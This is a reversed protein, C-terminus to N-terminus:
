EVAKLYDVAARAESPWEFGRNDFSVYIMRTPLNGGINIAREHFQHSSVNGNFLVDGLIYERGALMIERDNPVEKEAGERNIPKSYIYKFDAKAVYLYTPGDGDLRMGIKVQSIDEHSFKVIFRGTDGFRTFANDPEGLLYAEHNGPEDLVGEAVVWYAYDSGWSLPDDSGDDPYDIPSPVSLCGEGAVFPSIAAVLGGVIAQRLGRRKM